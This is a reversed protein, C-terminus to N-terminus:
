AHRPGPEGGGGHGGGGGGGGGDGGEAGGGGGGGGDSGGCFLHTAQLQYQERRTDNYERQQIGHLTPTTKRRGEAHRQRDTNCLNEQTNPSLGARGEANRQRDTNRM